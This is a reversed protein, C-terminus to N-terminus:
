NLRYLRSIIEVRRVIQGRYHKIDEELKDRIRDRISVLEAEADEMNMFVPCETEGKENIRKSQYLTYGGGAYGVIMAGDAAVDFVNICDRLTKKSSVSVGLSITDFDSRIFIGGYEGKFTIDLKEIEGMNENVIYLNTLGDLDNIVRKYFSDDDGYLKEYMLFAIASLRHWLNAKTPSAKFATTVYRNPTFVISYKMGDSISSPMENACMFLHSYIGDVVISIAYRYLQLFVSDPFPQKSGIHKHILRLMDDGDLKMVVGNRGEFINEIVYRKVM